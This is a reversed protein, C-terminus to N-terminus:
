FSLEPSDEWEKDDLEPVLLWESAKAINSFTKCQVGSQSLIAELHRRESLSRNSILSFKKLHSEKLKIVLKDLLHKVGPLTDGGVESLDNLWYKLKKNKMQTFSFKIVSNFDEESGASGKCINLLLSQDAESFVSAFVQGQDTKFQKIAVM